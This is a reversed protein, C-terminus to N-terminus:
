VKVLQVPRTVGGEFVLKKFSILFNYLIIIKGVKPNKPGRSGETPPPPNWFWSFGLQSVVGWCKNKVLAARPFFIIFIKKSFFINFFIEFKKLRHCGGAM